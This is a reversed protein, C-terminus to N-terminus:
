SPREPRPHFLMKSSQGPFRLTEWAREDEHVAEMGHDGTKRQITAMQDSM